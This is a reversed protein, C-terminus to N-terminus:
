SIVEDLLQRTISIKAPETAARKIGDTSNYTWNVQLDATIDPNLRLSDKQTLWCEIVNGSVKLFDGTKTISVSGQRITVYVNVAQSLDVDAGITLTLTPTTGRVM